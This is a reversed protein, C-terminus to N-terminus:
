DLQKKKKCHEGYEFVDTIVAKGGKQICGLLKEELKNIPIPERKFSKVFTYLEKLLQEGNKLDNLLVKHGFPIDDLLKVKKYLGDIKTLDEGWFGVNALVDFVIDNHKAKFFYLVSEVDNVPYDKNKFNEYFNILAAFSFSLVSPIKGFKNYYDLLSCLCRAKFKAVSNLSIDLLKHDIFPNNFREIVSNAFAKLENEDLDITKM